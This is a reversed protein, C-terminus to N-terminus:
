GAPAWCRAMTKGANGTPAASGAASAGGTATGGEATAGSAEGQPSCGALMGAGAAGAALVGAGQLFSRRSLEIRGRRKTFAAKQAENLRPEKRDM